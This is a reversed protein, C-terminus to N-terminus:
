QKEGLAITLFDYDQRGCANEDQEQNLCQEEHAHVDADVEPACDQHKDANTRQRSVQNGVDPFDGGIRELAAGIKQGGPSEFGCKCFEAATIWRFGHSCHHVFQRQRKLLLGLRLARFRNEFPHLPRVTRDGAVIGEARLFEVARWLSEAAIDDFFANASTGHSSDVEGFVRADIARNRELGDRDFLFELVLFQFLRAQAEIPLCFRRASQRMRVDNGYEVGTLVLAESVDRHLVHRADGQAFKGVRFAQQGGFARELEGRHRGFREIVGVVLAHNM